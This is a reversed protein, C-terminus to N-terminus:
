TRRSSTATSSGRRTPRRSPGASRCPSSCRGSSPCAAGERRVLQGLDVGDVYEMVFFFRGDPTTGCDTVDAINPHRIQSAAQAELQFRALLESKRREGHRPIKIAVRKGIGTHHGEYVRGMAGEGVLRRVFYRDALM